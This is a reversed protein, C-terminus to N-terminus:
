SVPRSSPAARREVDAMTTPPVACVSERLRDQDVTLLETTIVVSFKPPGGATQPLFVNGPIAAHALNTTLATVVVTGLQTRTYADSQV